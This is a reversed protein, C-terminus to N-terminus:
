RMGGGEVRLKKQSRMELVFDKGCESRDSCELLPRGDKLEFIDELYEMKDRAPILALALDNSLHMEDDGPASLRKTESGGLKPLRDSDRKLPSRADDRLEVL